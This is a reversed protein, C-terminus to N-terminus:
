VLTSWHKQIDSYTQFPCDPAMQHSISIIQGKKMSHFVFLGLTAFESLASNCVIIQNKRLTYILIQM